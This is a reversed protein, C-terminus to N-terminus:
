ADSLSALLEAAAEFAPDDDLIALLLARAAPLEGRDALGLAEDYATRLQAQISGPAAAATTATPAEPSESRALALAALQAILGQIEGDMPLLRGARVADERAREVQGAVLRARALALLLRGTRAAQTPAALERQLLPILAADERCSRAAQLAPELWPSGPGQAEWAKLLYPLAERQRGAEALRTGITGSVQGAADCDPCADLWLLLQPLLHWPEPRTHFTELLALASARDPQLGGALDLARDDLGAALELRLLLHLSSAPWHERHGPVLTLLEEAERQRLGPILSSLLEELAPLGQGLHPLLLRLVTPEPGLRTLHPLLARALQQAVREELAELRRAAGLLSGLLRACVAEPPLAELAQACLELVLPASPSLASFLELLADFAREQLMRDALRRLLEPSASGPDVFPLSDQIEKITIAETSELRAALLAPNRPLLELAAQGLAAGAARDLRSLTTLAGALLFAAASRRRQALLLRALQLTQEGYGGLEGRYLHLSALVSRATAETGSDELCDKALRELDHHLGPRGLQLEMLLSRSRQDELTGADRRSYLLRLLEPLDGAALAESLDAPTQRDPQAEPFVLAGQPQDGAPNSPTGFLLSLRNGQAGLALPRLSCRPVRRGEALFAEDLLPGPLRLTLHDRRQELWTSFPPRNFLELLAQDRPGELFGLGLHDVPFLAIRGEADPALRWRSVLTVPLPKGPLTLMLELQDEDLELQVPLDLYRSLAVKLDRASVTLELAVLESHHNRLGRSGAQISGDRLPPLRLEVRVLQVPGVRHPASLSLRGENRSLEVSFQMPM